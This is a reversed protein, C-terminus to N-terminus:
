RRGGNGASTRERAIKHRLSEQPHCAGLTTAWATAQPAHNPPVFFLVCAVDVMNHPVDYRTRPSDKPHPILVSIYCTHAMAGVFIIVHIKIPPRVVFLSLAVQSGTDSLSIQDVWIPITAMTKDGCNRLYYPEAM